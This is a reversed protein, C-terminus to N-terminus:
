SLKLNERLTAAAADPDDVEVVVRDFRAGELDVVLVRRARHVNWFSTRGRSRYRGAKIWGPLHTGVRWGLRRLARRDEGRASRVTDAPVEIRSALAWLKDLGRMEFRVTRTDASVDTGGFRRSTLAVFVAAAAGAIWGGM